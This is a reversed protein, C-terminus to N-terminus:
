PVLEAQHPSAGGTGSVTLLVDGHCGEVDNGIHLSGGDVHPGGKGHKLGSVRSYSSRACGM